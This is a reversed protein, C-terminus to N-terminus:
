PQTLSSSSGVNEVALIILNAWLKAWFRSWLTAALTQRLSPLLEPACRNAVGRDEAEEGGADAEAGEHM